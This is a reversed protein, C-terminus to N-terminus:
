ECNKYCKLNTRFGNAFRILLWLLNKGAQAPAELVQVTRVIPALAPASDAALGQNEIQIIQAPGSALGLVSTVSQALESFYDFFLKVIVQDLAM